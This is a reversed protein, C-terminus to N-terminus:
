RPSFTVAPETAGLDVEELRDVLKKLDAYAPGIVVARERTLPLRAFEALALLVDTPLMYARTVEKDKRDNYVFRIACDNTERFKFCKRGASSTARSHATHVPCDDALFGFTAV